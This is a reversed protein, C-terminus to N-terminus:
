PHILGKCLVFPKSTQGEEAGLALPLIPVGESHLAQPHPTHIRCTAANVSWTVSEPGEAGDRGDGMVSGCHRQGKGQASM